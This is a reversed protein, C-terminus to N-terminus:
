FNQLFKSKVINQIKVKMIPCVIHVVSDPKIVHARFKRKRKFLTLKKYAQRKVSIPPHSYNVKTNEVCVAFANAVKM